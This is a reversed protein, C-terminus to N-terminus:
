APAKTAQVIAAVGMTLTQTRVNVFGQQELLAVYDPLTDFAGISRPLYRYAGLNGTCAWGVVPLVTHNYIGHVMRTFAHRPRFFELITLQGGPRLTRWQEATARPLDSLNRIGFACFIADLSGDPEPLAHADMQKPEIHEAATGDLRAAGTELMGASFDGGVSTARPHARHIELSSDLTGACLDLIRADSPATGEPLLTRVAQRRWRVDIGFSMLRNARDYGPAIDSFMAQVRRGHDDIAAVSEDRADQPVAPSQAPM